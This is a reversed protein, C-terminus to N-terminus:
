TMLNPLPLYEGADLWRYPCNSCSDIITSGGNYPVHTMKNGCSPCMIDSTRAPLKARTSPLTLLGRKVNGLQKGNILVGDGRPCHFYDEKNVLVINCLPCKIDTRRDKGYPTLAAQHKKSLPKGLAPRIEAVFKVIDDQLNTPDDPDHKMESAMVFYLENGVIEWNQSQCFDLTFLMAKPDLVYRTNQQMGKECFLNFYSSYNGELDAREMISKGHTPNLQAAGTKKPIGVLHISTAFPLEVRYLLAAQPSGDLSFFNAAIIASYRLDVFTGEKVVDLKTGDTYYALLIPSDPLEPSRNKRRYAAYMGGIIIWIALFVYYGLDLISGSSSGYM